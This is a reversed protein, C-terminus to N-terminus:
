RGLECEVEEEGKAWQIAQDPCSLVCLECICNEGANFRPYDICRKVDTIRPMPYGLDSLDHMPEYLRRPCVVTCLLCGKCYGRNVRLKIEVTSAPSAMAM